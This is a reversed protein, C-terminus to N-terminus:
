FLQNDFYLCELSRGNLKLPLPTHNEGWGTNIESPIFIQKNRNINIFTEEMKWWLKENFVSPDYEM